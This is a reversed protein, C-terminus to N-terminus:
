VEILAASECFNGLPQPLGVNVDAMVVVTPHFSQPLVRVFVVQVPWSHFNDSFAIRSRRPTTVFPHARSIDPATHRQSRPHVSRGLLSPDRLFGRSKHKKGAPSVHIRTPSGFPQGLM